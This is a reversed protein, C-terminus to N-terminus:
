GQGGPGFLGALVTGNGVEINSAVIAMAMDSTYRTQDQLAVLMGVFQSAAALMEEPKLEKHRELTQKLDDVFATVAPTAPYSKM